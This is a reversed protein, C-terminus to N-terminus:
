VLIREAPWHLTSPPTVLPVGAEVTEGEQMEQISTFGSGLVPLPGHPWYNMFDVFAPTMTRWNTLTMLTWPFRDLNIDKTGWEAHAEYLGFQLSCYGSCKLM